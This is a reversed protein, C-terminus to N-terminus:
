PIWGIQFRGKGPELGVLDVAGLDSGQICGAGDAALYNNKVGEGSIVRGNFDLIPIIVPPPEDIIGHDTPLLGIGINITAHLDTHLADVEHFEVRVFAAGIWVLPANGELPLGHRLGCDGLVLEPLLIQVGLHIIIIQHEKSGPFPDIVGLCKFFPM